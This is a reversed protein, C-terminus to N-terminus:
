RGSKSGSPSYPKNEGLMVCRKGGGNFVSPFQSGSSNCSNGLNLFRHAAYNFETVWIDGEKGTCRM